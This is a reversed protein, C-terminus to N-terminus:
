RADAAAAPRPPVSGAASSPLIRLAYKEVPFDFTGRLDIGEMNTPAVRRLDETRPQEGAALIRDLAAQMGATNWAIVINSLLSLASSVGALAEDHVTSQKLPPMSLWTQMPTRDDRTSTLAQEWETLREVGYAKLVADLLQAERDRAAEAIFRKLERDAILLIRHEYFWRKLEPLLGSTNARGALTERLWRVVYRRQHETM